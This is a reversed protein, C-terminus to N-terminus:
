APTQMATAMTARLSAFWSSASTPPNATPITGASIPSVIRVSRARVRSARSSARCTSCSRSRSTWFATASSRSRIARSMCSM